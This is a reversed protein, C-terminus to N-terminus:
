QDLIDFEEEKQVKKELWKELHGRKFKLLGGVKMHPIRKQSVWEYLTNISIGLFDAAEESNLREKQKRIQGYVIANESVIAPPGVSTSKGITACDM